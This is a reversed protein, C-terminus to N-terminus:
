RATESRYRAALAAKVADNATNIPPKGLETFYRVRDSGPVPDAWAYATSAETHDVDFVSVDGKSLLQSAISQAHNLPTENRVVELLEMGVRIAFDAKGRTIDMAPPVCSQRELFNLAQGVEINPEMSCVALLEPAITKM